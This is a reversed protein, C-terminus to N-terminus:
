GGRLQFLRNFTRGARCADSLNAIYGCSELESIARLVQLYHESNKPHVGFHKSGKEHYYNYAELLLSYSKSDM